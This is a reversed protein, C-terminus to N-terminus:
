DAIAIAAMSLQLNHQLLKTGCAELTAGTTVVDDVLLVHKGELNTGGSLDFARSVNVQREARTMKTQTQTFVVRKLAKLVPRQMTRSLGQAFLEAQNYGRIKKKRPHLPVPVIVDVDQFEPTDKL